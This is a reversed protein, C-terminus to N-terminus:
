SVRWESRAAEGYVVSVRRARFPAIVCLPPYEPFLSPGVTARPKKHGEVGRLVTIGLSSRIEVQGEVPFWPFHDRCQITLHHLLFMSSGLRFLYRGVDEVVAPSVSISGTSVTDGQSSTPCALLASYFHALSRDSVCWTMAPDVRFTVKIWAAVNKMQWACAPYYWQLSPSADLGEERM